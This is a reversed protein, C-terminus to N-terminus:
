TETDREADADISGQPQSTAEGQGPPVGPRESSPRGKRGVSRRMRGSNSPESSNPTLSTGSRLAARLFKGQRWCLALRMLPIPVSEYHDLLRSIAIKRRHRAKLSVFKDDPIEVIADMTAQYEAALDHGDAEYEEGTRHAGRFRLKLQGLRRAADEHMWGQRDWATTLELLGLAFILLTLFGAVAQLRGSWFGLDVHRDGSLFAVASAGISLLLIALTLNKTRRRYRDRLCSHASLMMDLVRRM